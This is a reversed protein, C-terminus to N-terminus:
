PVLYLLHAISIGLPDTSAKYGEGWLIERLVGDWTKFHTIARIEMKNLSSQLAAEFGWCTGFIYLTVVHNGWSGYQALEATVM